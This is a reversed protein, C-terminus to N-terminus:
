VDSVTRVDLVLLAFIVSVVIRVIKPIFSLMVNMVISVSM